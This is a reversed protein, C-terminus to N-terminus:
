FANTVEHLLETVAHLLQYLYVFPTYEVFYGYFIHEEHKDDCRASQEQVRRELPSGCAHMAGQQQWCALINATYHWDAM